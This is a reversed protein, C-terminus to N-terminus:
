SAKKVPTILVNRVHQYLVEKGRYKGLYRAIDGRKWGLENGLYRIRASINPLHNLIEVLEDKPEPKMQETVIMQESLNAEGEVREVTPTAAETVDEITEPAEASTTVEETAIATEKPTRKNWRSM